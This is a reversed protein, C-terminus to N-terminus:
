LSVKLIDMITVGFLYVFFTAICLFPGFPIHSGLTYKSKRLVLIGLAFIGGIWFSVLIAAMGGWIGLMWGIGIALKVDGFGMGRGRTILWLFLFPIAIIPGALLDWLTPVHIQYHPGIFLFLGIFTLSNFLWVFKNPIVLHHYDYVSIVILLCFLYMVFILYFMSPWSMLLTDQMYPFVKIFVSVFVFGTIAEVLPYQYSIISSCGRCKGRQNFFSVLPILEHWSLTRRCTFCFSRGGLGRGTNFRYIVVNLFSGIITGLLFVFIGYVEFM